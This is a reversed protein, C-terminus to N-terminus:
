HKKKRNVLYKPIETETPVQISSKKETVEEDRSVILFIFQSIKM